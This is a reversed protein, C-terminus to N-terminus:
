RRWAIKYRWSPREMTWARSRLVTNRKSMRFPQGDKMLNVLQFIIIELSGGMAAVAAKM